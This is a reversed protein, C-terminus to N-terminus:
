PMAVGLPDARLYTALIQKRPVGEGRGAESPFSSHRGCAGASCPLQRSTEERIGTPRPSELWRRDEARLNSISGPAEAQESQRQGRASEGHRTEGRGTNLMSSGQTEITHSTVHWGKGSVEVDLQAVFLTRWCGSNKSPPKYHKDGFFCVRPGFSFDLWKLGLIRAM